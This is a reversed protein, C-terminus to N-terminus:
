SCGPSNPKDFAAFLQDVKQVPVDTAFAFLPTAIGLFFFIARACLRKRELANTRM